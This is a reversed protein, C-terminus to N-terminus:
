KKILKLKLMNDKASDIYKFKNIVDIMKNKTYLINVIEEKTSKRFYPEDFETLINEIDSTIINEFMLRLQYLTFKKEKTKSKKTPSGGTKIRYCKAFKILFNNESHTLLNDNLAISYLNQYERLYKNKNTLILRTTTKRDSLEEALENLIKKVKFEKIKLSQFESLINIYCDVFIMLQLLFLKEFLINFFNSIRKQFHSPLEGNSKFDNDTIIDNEIEEWCEKSKKITCLQLFMSIKQFFDKDLYKNLGKNNEEWFPKFVQGITKKITKDFIKPKEFYPEILISKDNKYTKFSKKFKRKIKTVIKIKGSTECTQGAFEEIVKWSKQFAYKTGLVEEEILKIDKAITKSYKEFTDNTLKTKINELMADANKKKIYENKNNLYEILNEREKIEKIKTKENKKIRKEKNETKAKSIKREYEATKDKASLFFIQEFIINNVELEKKIYEEKEKGKGDILNLDNNIIIIVSKKEANLIKLKVIDDRTVGKNSGIIWCITNVTNKKDFVANEIKKDVRKDCDFFGPMDVLTYDRLISCNLKAEIHDWKSSRMSILAKSRTELYRHKKSNILVYKNEKSYYFEVITKQTPKASEATYIVEEDSRGRKYNLLFNILTSKGTSFGGCFGIKVKQNSLINKANIILPKIEKLLFIAIDDNRSNEIVNEDIKSDLTELLNYHNKM